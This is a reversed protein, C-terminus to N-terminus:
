DSGNGHIPIPDKTPKYTEADAAGGGQSTGPAGGSEKDDKQGQCGCLAALLCITLLWAALKKM